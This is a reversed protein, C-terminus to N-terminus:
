QNNGSNNNNNNDNSNNAQINPNNLMLSPNKNYFQPVNNLNPNAFMNINRNNFLNQNLMNQNFQNNLMMQRFQFNNNHNFQNMMFNPNNMKITNNFQSAERMQSYLRLQEESMNNIIDSDEKKPNNRNKMLEDKLLNTSANSFGLYSLNENIKRQNVNSNDNVNNVSSVEYGENLKEKTELESVEINENINSLNDEDVLMKDELNINEEEEKSKAKQQHTMILNLLKMRANEEFTMLKNIIEEQDLNSFHKNMYSELLEINNSRQMIDELDLEQNVIEPKKNLPLIKVKLSKEKNLLTNTNAETNQDKKINDEVENQKKCIVVCILIKTIKDMSEKNYITIEPKM